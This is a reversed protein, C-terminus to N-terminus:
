TVPKADDPGYFYVRGGFGRVSPKGQQYMVTDSWFGVIRQPPVPEGQTKQWPFAPLKVETLDLPACGTLWLLAGVGLLGLLCRPGNMDSQM